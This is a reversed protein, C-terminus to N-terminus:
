QGVHRQGGPCGIVCNFLQVLLVKSGPCLFSLCLTALCLCPLWQHIAVQCSLLQLLRGHDQRGHYGQQQLMSMAFEM